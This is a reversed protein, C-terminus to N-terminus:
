DCSVEVINQNTYASVFYNSQVETVVHTLSEYTRGNTFRIAKIKKDSLEKHESDTLNFYANGECNFKNWSSLTLKTEDSFLFILSNKEVCSGINVAKAILGNQIVSTGSAKFAPYISFGKTNEKNIASLKKKSIFYERETMADKCYEIDFKDQAQASFSLLAISLLVIKKM